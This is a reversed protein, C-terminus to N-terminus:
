DSSQNGGTPATKQAKGLDRMKQAFASPVPASLIGARFAVNDGTGWPDGRFDTLPLIADPVAPLSVPVKGRRAM